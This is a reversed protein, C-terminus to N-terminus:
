KAVQDLNAIKYQGEEQAMKVRLRYGYEQGQAGINDVKVRLAVLLDISGDENDREVAARMESLQVHVNAVQYSQALMSSYLNAQAGFDGTACEMIKRQAAPLAAVDPAQTAALCDKAATVAAANDRAIAQSEHHSRLAFYGGTAAGAALLALAACIGTVWGRGLRSPGREPVEPRPEAAPSGEPSTQDAGAESEASDEVTVETSLADDAVPPKLQGAGAHGEM